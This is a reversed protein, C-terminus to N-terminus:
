NTVSCPGDGILDGVAVTGTAIGIRVALDFGVLPQALPEKIAEIIGLGANIAREADDEHATPFGFYAYVGDGMFKAVFGDYRAIVGSCADQYDRLVDRMDEPDLSASLETSGVLDCFLVTLQRREAEPAPAIKIPSAKTATPSGQAKVNSAEEVASLIRKRHGLAVVGLEKLDDDTLSPLLDLDISNDAFTQAYQGLGLRELWETVERM